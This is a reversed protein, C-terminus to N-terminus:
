RRRRRRWIMGVLAIGFLATPGGHGGADCCGGGGGPACQGSSGDSLCQFGDPCSSDNGSTCSMSCLMGENSTAICDGSNCDNDSGCSSGLGMPTYPTTICAKNFCVETSTCDADTTCTELGPITATLFAKEAAIRTDTGYSTCNPDGFSTEGVELTEGNITAFSPGGSDGECKGKGNSQNYCLLDPDAGDFGIAACAVLTQGVTYLTGVVGTETEGYGVQTVALGSGADDPDLDLKAPTIGTVPTPLHILGMDHSGLANINFDPDPMSMDPTLGGNGAPPPNIDLANVFIRLGNTVDQQSGVNDESPLVCHGATMVWQDTILTGTCFAEFDNGTFVVGVVNPYEGSTAPTGGFIKIEGDASASACLSLLVFLVARRMSRLM